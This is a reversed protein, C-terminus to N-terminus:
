YQCASPHIREILVTVEKMQKFSKESIGPPLRIGTLRKLKRRKPKIKQIEPTRKTKGGSSRKKVKQNGSDVIPKLPPKRSRSKRQLSKSPLMTINPCNDTPKTLESPLYDLAMTLTMMAAEKKLQSASARLTKSTSAQPQLRICDRPRNLPFDKYFKQKKRLNLMGYITPRNPKMVTLIHDILFIAGERESWKAYAGNKKLVIHLRTFSEKIGASTDGVKASVRTDELIYMDDDPSYENFKIPDFQDLLENIAASVSDVENFYKNIRQVAPRPGAGLTFKKGILSTNM